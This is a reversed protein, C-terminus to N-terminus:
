VAERVEFSFVFCFFFKQIRIMTMLVVIRPVECFVIELFLDIFFKEYLDVMVRIAERRIIV